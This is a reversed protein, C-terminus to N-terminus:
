ASAALWTAAEAFADSVSLAYGEAAFAAFADEGLAVRARAIVPDVAEADVPELHFDIRDSVATAAGHFLAAPRWAGVLSALAAFLELLIVDRRVQSFRTRLQISEGLLQRLAPADDRMTAIFAINVLCHAIYSSHRLARADDLNERYAGEAGTLDGERRMLEGLMHRGRRLRVGGVARYHVMAEELYARAQRLDGQANCLGGLFSLAMAMLPKDDLARAIALAEEGARVSEDYRGLFLGLHAQRCLAGARAANPEDAGVRGLAECTLRYGLGYMGMVDWFIGLTRVLLLGSEVLEDHLGCAAHAALLNEHEADMCAMWEDIEHPDAQGALLESALMVFYRAHRVRVVPMEHAEDVRDLAYQRVTEVMTYRTDGAADRDMAILSKDSLRTLTDLVDFEDAKDDAVAAAAPLTWGGVFIGLRRLLAQETAPLQDYSWNLTALLTQQRPLARNGGTLLRFRDSLRTRIDALKLMKARAAALEIALAIGDLRRCIDLVIPANSADLQLSPDALRARDMFLAV